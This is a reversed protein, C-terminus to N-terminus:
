DIEILKNEIISYLYTKTKKNTIKEIYNKYGKIQKKYEEDSINKLKYDIIKYHDNYELLLDIIGVVGNEIFEHEKYIKLPKEIQDLFNKVYKNKHNEFDELEFIEHIKTGFEM